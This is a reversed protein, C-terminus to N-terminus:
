RPRRGRAQPQAGCTRQQGATDHVVVCGVYVWVAVGPRGCWACLTPIRLLARQGAIAM